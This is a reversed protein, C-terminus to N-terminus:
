ISAMYFTRRVYLPLYEKIRRLLAINSAVALEIKQMHPRWILNSDILIGLLKQTYVTSLRNGQLFVDRYTKFSKDFTQLKQRTTILMVMTKDINIAMKNEDYWNSVHELDSNLNEEILPITKGSTSITSDDAHMSVLSHEMALPLDNIFITFLLPELISGRPVGCTIEKRESLHGQIRVRQIRDCLFSISWSLISEYCQYLKLKHLLVEHDLMDFVKQIDLFVLGNPEGKEINQYWLELRHALATEYSFGTRFGSQLKYLVNKTSLYNCFGTYVHLRIIRSIVALIVIPRYNSKDTRSGGKQVPCVKSIKWQM